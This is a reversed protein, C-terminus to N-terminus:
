LDRIVVNKKNESKPKIGDLGLEEIRSNYINDAKKREIKDWTEKIIDIKYGGIILIFGILPFTVSMLGFIYFFYSWSNTIICIIFPTAFIGMTLAKAWQVYQKAKNNSSKRLKKKANIIRNLWETELEQEKETVKENLLRELEEKRKKQEKKIIEEEKTKMEKKMREELYRSASEIKEMVFDETIVEAEKENLKSLSDEIYGHYLLMSVEEDTVEKKGKMERVTTIFKDWINRNVFLDQSHAAILAKVPIKNSIDPNKLWLINTLFRDLMVECITSFEKHGMVEFNFRSLRFDSTLFLVKSEEIKRRPRGRLEKIREVVFLDHNRSKHLQEPKYGKIEERLRPDSPEFSNINFDLIWEIEIGMEELKDEINAIFKKVKFETWGKRKLTNYISDVRVESSYKNINQKFGNLVHCIEDVTNSFIKLKFDFKKLIAFLEKAPENVQRYHLDMVSFLFNSDLYIECTKFKKNVESIKERSLILSIVSGYIIEKLTAYQNPKFQTANDIYDILSKSYRDVKQPKIQTSVSNTNFFELFAYVNKQIFSTLINATQQDTISDELRENIFLTMDHILENIRREVDNEREITSQFKIGNDSLDYKGNGIHTIYKKKKLRKLITKLTYKPITLGYQKKVKNQLTKLGISSKDSPFCKIVLPWFSDIYDRGAEKYANILAYIYIQNSM